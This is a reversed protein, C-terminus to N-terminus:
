IWTNELVTLRVQKNYIMYGGVSMISFHYLEVVGLNEATLLFRFPRLLSSALLIYLSSKENKWVPNEPRVQGKLPVCLHFIICYLSM